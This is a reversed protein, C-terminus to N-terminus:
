SARLKDLSSASKMAELEKQEGLSSYNEEADSPTLKLTEHTGKQVADKRLHLLESKLDIWVKLGPLFM